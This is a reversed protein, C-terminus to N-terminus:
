PPPAIPTERTGPFGGFPLMGGYDPYRPYLTYLGFRLKCGSLRLSCEDRQWYNSSGVQPPSQAGGRGPGSPYICVFFQPAAPFSVEVVDGYWYNTFDVWGGKFGHQGYYPLNNDDADFLGMGGYGCGDGRYTWQCQESLVRRRPLMLDEFDMPNILEYTCTVRNEDTKRNILWSEVPFAATNDYNSGGQVFKAFTRLRSLKCGVLGGYELNLQTFTGMVNSFSITPRPQTSTTSWELGQVQVPWQAWDIGQFVVDVYTMVQNDADWQGQTGAHFHLKINAKPNLDLTFLDIIASPHLSAAEQLVSQKIV